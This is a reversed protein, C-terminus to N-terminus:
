GKRILSLMTCDDFLECTGKFSNVAQKVSALLKEPSQDKNSNLIALMREVGMREGTDNKAEPIGDTYLFLRDGKNLKIIEDTYEIDEVTALPPQHEREILEYQGGNHMVAPYEHGANACIIEGTSLTLVGYWATVFLGTPNDECLTNNVDKLVEAPTCPVSSHIKLLTKAVIMFMAAPVGRGSVDAMVLGIRDDDIMFFDYFDGGMERAPTMTAFLELKDNKPFDHPLIDEQLRAAINLEAGIREKEATVAMLDKIYNEADHEMKVMAGSLSGIEDSRKIDLSSFKVRKEDDTVYGAAVESLRNIPHIVAFDLVLVSVVCIVATIAVLLIALTIIFSSENAKIDDMSLDVAIIGLPQDDSDYLTVLSTVTWGYIDTNTIYPEIPKTLNYAIDWNYEKLHETTGPLCTNEPDADVLYIAYPINNKFGFTGTYVYSLTPIDLAYVSKLVELISKYEEMERVEAYRDMYANFADSGWDDDLVLEEEPISDFIELTRDHVKKLAETDISLSVASALDHAKNKFNEANTQSFRLASMVISAACLMVSLAVIIIGAKLKLPFRIAKNM